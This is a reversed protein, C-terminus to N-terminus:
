IGFYCMYEMFGFLQSKALYKWESPGRSPPGQVWHNNILQDLGTDGLIPGLRAPLRRVDDLDSVDLQVVHLTGKM